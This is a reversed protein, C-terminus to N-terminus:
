YHLYDFVGGDGGTYIGRGRGRAPYGGGRGRLGPAPPRGRGYLGTTGGRAAPNPTSAGDIGTYMAQGM